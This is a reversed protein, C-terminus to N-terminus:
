HPSAPGFAQGLKGHQQTIKTHSLQKTKKKEGEKGREKGEREEVEMKAGKNAKVHHCSM